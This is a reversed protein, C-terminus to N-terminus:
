PRVSGMLGALYYAISDTSVRYMDIRRIGNDARALWNMFRNGYERSVLILPETGQHSRAAALVLPLLLARTVTKRFM